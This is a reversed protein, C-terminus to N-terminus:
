SDVVEQVLVLWRTDRGKDIGRRGVVPQVVGWYPRSDRGLPDPYDTLLRLSNEEPPNDLLEDIRALLKASLRAPRDGPKRAPLQPHHLILGRKPEDEIYDTRLDILVVELNSDLEKELVEFDGLDVSMALVGVIRRDVPLPAGNGVPVSFAVKLRQTTDSEYVASQHQSAIPAVDTAGDPLDHGQGHFYDRHSYNEGISADSKPARAVQIGRIDNIFWSESPTEQSHSLKEENIWTQLPKWLSTDGPANAIASLQEQVLETRAQQSLIRFRTDIEDAVESAAFKASTALNGARLGRRERQRYNAYEQWGILGGGVGAVALATGGAVIWKRRSMRQRGSASGPRGRATDSYAGSAVQTDSASPGRTIDSAITGRVRKVAEVLRNDNCFPALAEVVEAPTQFRDEPRKALMRQMTREVPKPCQLERPLTPIPAREHARQPRLDSDFYPPWGTLLHHFTCGLSYIDSRIDVSTTQWQEPSMYMATGMAGHDLRTLRDHDDGVLLALGLDLIKVLPQQKADDSAHLGSSPLSSDDVSAVMLNSPKIDRHV